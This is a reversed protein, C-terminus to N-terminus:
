LEWTKAESIDKESAVLSVGISRIMYTGCLPCDAAVYGDLENQLQDLQALSRKDNDKARAAVQKLQEQLAAVALVEEQSELYEASRLVMCDEHYGHGCPFLYFQKGFLGHSCCECTQNTKVGLGRTTVSLLEMEIAEASNSLEEMEEKMGEVRNAYEELTSYIEEKFHDIESFDPLYELIDEIRLVGGSDRLVDLVRGIDSEGVSVIVHKAITLWLKKAISYEVPRSAIAKAFEINIELALKVAKEMLDMLVYLYVCSRKRHLRRCTRLALSPDFIDRDLIVGDEGYIGDTDVLPQLLALLGREGDEDYKALLWILAHQVSADIVIEGMHICARQLTEELYYIAFNKKNGYSDEDLTLAEDGANQHGKNSQLPDDGTSSSSRHSMALRRSELIRTQRDLVETYRFLAPLLKKPRLLPKSLFLEVTMEPLHEMLVPGKKYILDEVKEIPSNQLVTIADGYSGESLYHSLVRDYDGVIQCYFLLLPRFEQGRSSLLSVTTTIDLTGRNSRLFDKFSRLLKSDRVGGTIAILHLFVECLWTAIMTKQSKAGAPLIRLKEQLYVRLSTLNDESSLDLDEMATFLTCNSEALYQRGLGQQHQQKRSSASSGRYSLLMLAVEEFAINTVAFHTAAKEMAGKELCYMAQARHVSRRQEETKCYQHATEFLRGDSTSIAKSLYTSWVTRDEHVATIQYISSTTIMWLTQKIPDRVLVVPDGSDEGMGVGGSLSLLLNDEHQVEGSIRSQSVLAHPYLLLFHFETVALSLPHMQSPTNQPMVFPFLGAEMVVSETGGQVGANPLLMSGHYVGLQTTMAFSQNLEHHRKSYCHLEAEDIQGPLEAFTSTGSNKYDQFLQQFSPGGIFHYLRTPQSTVCLVFIRTSTGDGTGDDDPTNSPVPAVGHSAYVEFHLSTIAHPQELQHVLQCIKEKGTSELFMEYIRGTSTGILFSKTNAETAKQRDFAVSEINGVLKSLKKPKNSRGHIYFAEGNKCSVIVHNATSDMFVKHITDESKRSIEIEETEGGGEMNWRLIVGDTTGLVFINNNVVVQSIERHVRSKKDKPSRLNWDLRRTAFIPPEEEPSISAKAAPAAAEDQKWEEFLDM